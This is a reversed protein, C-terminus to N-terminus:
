FLHMRFGSRSSSSGKLVFSLSLFALGLFILVGALLFALIEPKLILVIAFVLLCIGALLAVLSLKSRGKFPAEALNDLNYLTKQTYTWM